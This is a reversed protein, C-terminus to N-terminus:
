ITQISCMSNKNTVTKKSEEHKNYGIIVASKIGHRLKHFPTIKITPNILAPIKPHIIALKCSIVSNPNVNTKNSVRAQWRLSFQKNFEHYCSENSVTKKTDIEYEPVLQM